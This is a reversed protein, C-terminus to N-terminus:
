SLVSLQGRVARFPVCWDNSRAFTLASTRTRFVDYWAIYWNGKRDGTEHDTEERTILIWGVIPPIASSRKKAKTM